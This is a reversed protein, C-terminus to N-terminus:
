PHHTYVVEGNIELALTNAASLHGSVHTVYVPHERSVRDLDDRTPHRGERLFVPDYGRGTVWSGRPVARERIFTRLAAVLSDIDTVAGVPPASLDASDLAAAVKALHGHGDVFGPLLARGRLDIVETLRNRLALIEPAPGTALIRGDAVAVAEVQRSTADMTLIPGGLLIAEPTQQEDM